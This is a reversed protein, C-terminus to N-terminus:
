RLTEPQRATELQLGRIGRNVFWRLPAFVGTESPFIKKREKQAM